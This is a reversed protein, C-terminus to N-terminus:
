KQGALSFLRVANAVLASALVAPDERRVEAMKHVILDVFSPENRKGRHPVPAVYPCDTESLLLERPAYALAEDYDRAFTVVGTFSISFGIEFYRKAIDKSESFFHINGRLRDGYERKKSELISLMDPHAGRCHVMIPKNMETAMEIHAEFVRKQRSKEKDDKEGGVVYDLGCEGVSVARPHGLLQRYERVIFDETVNDTPHLGVSAFVSPDSEAVRVAQRSTALDTGVTITGINKARMRALVDGRDADFRMDHIHSHADFFSFNM